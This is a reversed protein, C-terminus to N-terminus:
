LKQLKKSIQQPLNAFTELAEIEMFHLKAPIIICHLPPGFDKNLLNKIINAELIPTDSSAQGVICIITDETIVNEKLIGEMKLLIDMGQNATMYLNKDAQIDLLVLSHLGMEKNQKVVHYQSTPFYEKEPFALTTTRGFKYNQLGLLGPAATVISGSHIIKTKIGKKIARIRLDVHTTATMPDGCVLFAVKESQANKLIIEGKESESRSLVNINKGIVKEFSPKNFGALKSTYFEAFVKKCNKLENLGKLSIDNEDYLGLGIFILQGKEMNEFNIMLNSYLFTDMTSNIRFPKFSFIYVYIPAAVVLKKKIENEIIQGVDLYKNPRFNVSLFLSLNLNVKQM